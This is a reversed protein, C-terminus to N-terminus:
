ERIEMIPIAGLKDNHLIVQYGLDRLNCTIAVIDEPDLIVNKSHLEIDCLQFSEGMPVYIPFKESHMLKDTIDNIVHKVVDKYKDSEMQEIRIKTARCPPFNAAPISLAAACFSISIITSLVLPKIM